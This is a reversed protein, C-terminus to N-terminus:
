WQAGRELKRGDVGRGELRVKVGRLRVSTWVSAHVSHPLNRGRLSQDILWLGVVFQEKNLRGTDIQNAVVLDWIMGLRDPHLRSRIWIDRVVLNQVEESPNSDGNSNPSPLPTYLGKNAAWVGEYRKLEEPSIADRWRERTGEHHKNPKPRFQHKKLKIEKEQPEKRLTALMVPALPKKKEPSM